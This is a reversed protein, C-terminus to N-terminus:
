VLNLVAIPISRSVFFLVEQDDELGARQGRNQGIHVVQSNSVQSMNGSVNNFTGGTIHTGNLAFSM